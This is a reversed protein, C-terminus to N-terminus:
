NKGWKTPYSLSSSSALTTFKRLKKCAIDFEIAKLDVKPLYTVKTKVFM